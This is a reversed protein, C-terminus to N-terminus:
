AEAHTVAAHRDARERSHIQVHHLQKLRKIKKSKNVSFNLLGQHIHFLHEAEKLLVFLDLVVDFCCGEVDGVTHHTELM